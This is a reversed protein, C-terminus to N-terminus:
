LDGPRLEIPGAAPYPQGGVVGLVMGTREFEQVVGDRVLVLGPHGANVYTLRRRERDLGVLLMSLFHGEESSEVLRDNLRVTVRELDDILELYSRLAAQFAHTLLAAGIGHGTADAIAIALSGGPQVVVDYTDGSTQDFAAFHLALDVGDIHEPVETLLHHQIHRALEIEKELRVKELSDRHLRANEVAIATQASLAGFLALDRGTFERRQAKSDVYIVGVDRGRAVLPACMVARLKLDFVSQGLELAEQDSRVVSRVAQREALCRAVMSRSYQLDGQLANGRNDRAIR